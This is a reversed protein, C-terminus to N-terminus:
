YRRLWVSRPSIEVKEPAVGKRVGWKDDRGWLTPKVHGGERFQNLDGDSVARIILATALTDEGPIRVAGPVPPLTSVHSLSSSVLLCRARLCLWAASAKRYHPFTVSFFEFAVNQNVKNRLAQCCSTSSASVDAMQLLAASLGRNALSGGVRSHVGSRQETLCKELSWGKTILFANM